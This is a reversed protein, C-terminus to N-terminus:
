STSTNLVFYFTAGKGPESEVWVRGHHKKIAREVIALGIGTSSLDEPINIQEFPSFLKKSHEMNFGIGNDKIYYANQSGSKLQGLQIKANSVGRTFKWANSILQQLLLKILAKDTEVILNNESIFEVDHKMNDNRKLESVIDKSIETLDVKEPKIKKRSIKQLLSIDDLLLAMKKGAKTIRNINSIDEKGLKDKSDSLVIQSFSVIARLPTRLDHALSYNFKELEENITTLEHTRIKVQDELHDQYDKILQMQIKNRRLVFTTVITGTFLAFIGLILTSITVVQYNKKATNLTHNANTKQLTILKEMENFAQIQSDLAQSIIKDIDERNEEDLIIRVMEMQVAGGKKTRDLMTNYIKEEDEPMGLETLRDRAVMFLSAAERHEYWAQEIDFQDESLMMDRISLQRLRMADKMTLLLDTKVNNVSVITELDKNLGYLYVLSNIAVVVLLFLVTSFGIILFRNSKKLQIKDYKM